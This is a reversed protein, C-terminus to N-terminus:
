SKFEKRMWDTLLEKDYFLPENRGLLGINNMFDLDSLRREGEKIVRGEADLLRFALKQRPIFIERIIRVDQNNPNGPVFDGALDIDLITVELRQDPALHQGAVKEIHKALVKLYHEDTSGGLHSRADTFKESEHFSITVPAPQDAAAALTASAALATGLLLTTLPNKM